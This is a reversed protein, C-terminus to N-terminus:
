IVFCVCQQRELSSLASQLLLMEQQANTSHTVQALKKVPLLGQVPQHERRVDNEHKLSLSVCYDSNHSWDFSEDDVSLSSEWLM